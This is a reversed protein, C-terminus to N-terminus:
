IYIILAGLNDVNVDKQMWTKLLNLSVPGNNLWLPKAICAAWLVRGHMYQNCHVTRFRVTRNKIEVIEYKYHILTLDILDHWSLVAKAHWSAGRFALSTKHSTTYSQRGALLMFQNNQYVVLLNDKSGKALNLESGRPLTIAKRNDKDYLVNCRIIIM